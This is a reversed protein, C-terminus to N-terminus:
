NNEKTYVINDIEVKVAMSEIEQPYSATHFYKGLFYECISSDTGNIDTTWTHGNKTTVKVIRM